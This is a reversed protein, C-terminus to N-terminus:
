DYYIPNQLLKGVKTSLQSANTELSILLPSEFIFIFIGIEFAEVKNPYTKEVIEELKHFNTLSYLQWCICFYLKKSNRLSNNIKEAKTPLFKDLSIWTELILQKLFLRPLHKMKLRQLCFRIYFLSNNGFFIICFSPAIGM